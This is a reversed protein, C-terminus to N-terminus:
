GDDDESYALFRKIPRLNNFPIKFKLTVQGTGIGDVYYEKIKNPQSPEDDDDSEEKTMDPKSKM